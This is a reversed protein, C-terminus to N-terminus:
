FELTILHDCNTNKLHNDFKHCAMIIDKSNMYYFLFKDLMDKTELIEFYIKDFIRESIKQEIIKNDFM